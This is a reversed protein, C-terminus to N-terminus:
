LREFVECNGSNMFHRHLDFHYRSAGQLRVGGGQDQRRSRERPHRAGSGDTVETEDIGAEESCGPVAHPGGAMVKTM